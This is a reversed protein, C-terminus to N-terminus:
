EVGLLRKGLMVAPSVFVDARQRPALRAEPPAIVHPAYIWNIVARMEDTLQPHFSLRSWYDALSFTDPHPKEKPNHTLVNCVYDYLVVFTWGQEAETMEPIPRDTCNPCPIEAKPLFIPTTYIPYGSEKWQHRDLIPIWTSRCRGCVHMPTDNIAEIIHNRTGGCEAINQVAQAYDFKADPKTQEAIRNVDYTSLTIKSDNLLNKVTALSAM